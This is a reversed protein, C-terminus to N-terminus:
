VKAEFGNLSPRIDEGRSVVSLVVERQSEVNIQAYLPVAPDGTRQSGVTTTIDSGPVNPSDSYVNANHALLYRPTTKDEIQQREPAKIFDARSSHQAFSSRYSILKDHIWECGPWLAPVCAAVIGLQVELLQWYWNNIGGYTFDEPILQFNLTTRVIGCAGTRDRSTLKQQISSILYISFM